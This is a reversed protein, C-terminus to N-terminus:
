DHGDTRLKREFEQLETVGQNNSIRECVIGLSLSSVGSGDTIHAIRDQDGCASELDFVTRIGMARLRNIDEKFYVYLKAQAIWDILQCPNFPTKLLLEVIDAEALNQANDIGVEALRIKSFMNIGEIMRLPLDHAKGSSRESFIGIRERLYLLAQEPLMGTLFAIVPLLEKTYKKTPTGELLFSLILSLTASFIIRLASSYYTNPALDGAILRRIINQASWLFAGIFAMTLVVMSQWRLNEIDLNDKETYPGTLLINAKDPRIRVLEEGFLLATFGFICVLTAFAV